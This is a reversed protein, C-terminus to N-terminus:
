KRTHCSPIGSELTIATAIPVGAFSVGVLRNVHPAEERIMISMAEAVKRLTEPFSSLLRLQIYFPSWQGSILFWGGPRDRVSTLLMRNNYIDEMISRKLDVPVSKSGPM